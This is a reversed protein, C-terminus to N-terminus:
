EELSDMANRGFGEQLGTGRAVHPPLHDKRPTAVAFGHSSPPCIENNHQRAVALGRILNRPSTMLNNCFEAPACIIGNTNQQCPHEAGRIGVFLFVVAVLKRSRKRLRDAACGSVRLHWAETPKPTTAVCTRQVQPRPNMSQSPTTGLACTLPSTYRFRSSHSALEPVTYGRLHLKGPVRVRAPPKPM